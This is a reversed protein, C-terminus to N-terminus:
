ARWHQNLHHMVVPISIGGSAAVYEDAGIDWTGSVTTGDIDVNYPSGYNYGEDILNSTSKLHFDESGATLSVFEDAPTINHISNAGPGQYSSNSTNDANYDGSFTGVFPYAACSICNYVSATASSNNFGYRGSGSNYMTCNYFTGTASNGIYYSRYSSEAINRYALVINNANYQIRIPYISGGYVLCHHIVQQGTVGTNYFYFVANSMGGADAKVMVWSIETYETQCQIAYDGSSPAMYFGAASDLGRRKGEHREGEHVTIVAHNSANVTWGGVKVYNDLGDSWDDYCDAVCNGANETVLDDGDHDAEWTSLDNYDPAPSTSGSARIAYTGASGHLTEKAPDYPEYGSSKQIIDSIKLDIIQGEKLKLFAEDSIRYLWKHFCDELVGSYYPVHFDRIRRNQADGTFSYGYQELEKDPIRAVMFHPFTERKGHQWGDHRVSVIDGQRTGGTCKQAWVNTAAAIREDVTKLKTFFQAEREIWTSKAASETTFLNTTLDRHPFNDGIKILLEAM